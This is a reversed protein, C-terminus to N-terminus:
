NGSEPLYVYEAEGVFTTRSMRELCARFSKRWSRGYSRSLISCIPKNCLKYVLNLSGRGCAETDDISRVVKTKMLSLFTTVIM